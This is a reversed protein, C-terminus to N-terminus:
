YWRMTAINEWIVCNVDEPVKCAPLWEENDSRCLDARKASGRPMTISPCYWCPFINSVSHHPYHDVSDTWVNNLWGHMKQGQCHWHFANIHECPNYLKIGSKAFAFAAVHEAGYRNM